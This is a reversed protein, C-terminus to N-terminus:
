SRDSGGNYARDHDHGDSFADCLAYAHSRLDASFSPEVELVLVPRSIAVVDHCWQIRIERVPGGNVAYVEKPMAEEVALTM